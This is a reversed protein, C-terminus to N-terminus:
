SPAIQVGRIIRASYRRCLDPAAIEVISDKGSNGASAEIAEASQKLKRGYFAALERAVGYHSLCDPRNTTIDLELVTQKGETTVSDVPLGLMTMDEALRRADSPLSVFEKLWSLLIKM